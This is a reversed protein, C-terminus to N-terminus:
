VGRRLEKLMSKIFDKFKEAFVDLGNVKYEVM